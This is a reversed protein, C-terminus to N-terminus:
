ILELRFFRWTPYPKLGQEWERKSSITAILLIDGRKLTVVGRSFPIKIRLYRSLHGVSEVHGYFSRFANSKLLDGVEASSIRKISIERQNGVFLRGLMHVSFTNCLYIM